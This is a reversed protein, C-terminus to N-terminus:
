IASPSASPLAIARHHRSPSKVAAPRFDRRQLQRDAGAVDRQRQLGRPFFRQRRLLLRDHRQDRDHHLHRVREVDHRARRFEGLRGRAPRRRDAVDDSAPPSRQSRGVETVTSGMLPLDSCAGADSGGADPLPVGGGVSDCSVCTQLTPDCLTGQGCTAFACTGGVFSQPECTTGDCLGTICTFAVTAGPLTACPQRTGGAPICTHTGVEDCATWFQCATPVDGCAAGASRRAMCTGAQCFQTGPCANDDDCPGGAVRRACTGPSTPDTPDARKCFLNDLCPVQDTGGCVEGLGKSNVCTGSSNCYLGTTCEPGDMCLPGPGCHFGCPENENGLRLCIDGCPSNGLNVCGSVPGCVEFDRCGQGDAVKGLLVEYQCPYPGPEDCSAQFKQLCAAFLERHYEVTGEAVHRDYLACDLFSAEFARWDALSGGTCRAGLQAGAENLAQCALGASAPAGGGDASGDETAVAIPKSSGGCGIALALLAVVVGWARSPVCMPQKSTSSSTM